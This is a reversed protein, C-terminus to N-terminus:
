AGDPTSPIWTSVSPETRNNPGLIVEYNLTYLNRWQDVVFKAANVGADGENKPTRALWSGDPNYIDLRYDSPDSGTGKYSLVYIFSKTEVGIDLYHIGPTIGDKLAM